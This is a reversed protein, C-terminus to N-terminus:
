KNLSVNKAYGDAFILACYWGSNNAFEYSNYSQKILMINSNEFEEIKNNLKELTKNYNGNFLEIVSGDKNVQILLM